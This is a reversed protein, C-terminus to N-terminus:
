STHLTVIAASAGPVHLSYGHHSSLAERSGRWQGSDDVTSGGLTIGSKSERSPGNLRVVTARHFQNAVALKARAARHDKNVIAVLTRDDRQAAYVTVNMGSADYNTALLDSGSFQAFALMGYYEPAASYQGHQDDMIPSYPSIFDLQNIGTEMNLGVAGHSALTLMYDLAWLASSFTDSVGPKGGGSFSNTEVIRYPIGARSSAARMTNLMQPLHPDQALLEDISSHPNRAGGRYYHHTLLKLDHGEDQAFRVAWETERAVDPGAFPASPLKARIAAKYRRYEKLYQNYSYGAPRHGEHVYLDPENGIEFALLKDGVVAAVAQAEQVADQKTGGGLNLGWILKWNTANLFGSLQQLSESNIVTSKPASILKGSPHFSSYDSTNGGVRIVGHPSLTRVLRIYGSNAPSLLGPVAVSSIEYGLGTFNAPIHGVSKGLHISVLAPEEGFLHRSAIAGLSCISAALFGRRNM